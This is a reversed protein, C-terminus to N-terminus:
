IKLIVEPVNLPSAENPDDLLHDSAGYLIDSSMLPPDLSLSDIDLRDNQINQVISDDRFILFHADDSLDDM